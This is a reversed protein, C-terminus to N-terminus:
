NDLALLLLLVKIRKIREKGKVEDPKLISDVKSRLIKALKDENVKEPIVFDTQKAKLLQAAIAEELEDYKRKKRRYVDLIDSTDPTEIVGGYQKPNLLLLLSM